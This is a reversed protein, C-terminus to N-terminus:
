MIAYLCVFVCVHLFSLGPPGERAGGDREDGRAHTGVVQAAVIPDFVSNML